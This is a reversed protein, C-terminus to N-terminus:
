GSVLYLWQRILLISTRSVEALIHCLNWWDMAWTEKDHGQLWWCPHLYLWLWEMGLTKTMSLWSFDWNVDFLLLILKFPVAAQGYGM